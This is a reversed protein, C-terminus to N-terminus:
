KKIKDMFNIMELHNQQVLLDYPVRNIHNKPNLVAGANVLLKLSKM